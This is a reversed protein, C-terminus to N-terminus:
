PALHITLTLNLTAQPQDYMETNNNSPAKSQPMPNQCTNNIIQENLGPWATFFGSKIAKLWASTTPSFGCKHLYTVLDTKSTMEYISNALHSFNHSM